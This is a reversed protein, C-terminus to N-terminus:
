SACNKREVSRDITQAVSTVRMLFKDFRQWERSTEASDYLSDMYRYFAAEMERFWIETDVCYAIYDPDQWDAGIYIKRVPTYPGYGRVQSYDSQSLSFYGLPFVEGGILVDHAVGNRLKKRLIDGQGEHEKGFIHVFGRLYNHESPYDDNVVIKGMMEPVANLITLIAHDIYGSTKPDSMAKSDFLLRVPLFVRREVFSRFYEIKEAKTM